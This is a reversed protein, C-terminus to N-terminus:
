LNIEKAYRDIARDVAANEAMANAREMEAFLRQANEVRTRRVFFITRADLSDFPVIVALTDGKQRVNHVEYRALLKNYYVRYNDDIQRLSWAVDMVDNTIPLLYAQKM